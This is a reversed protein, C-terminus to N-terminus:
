ATLRLPPPPPPPPLASPRGSPLKPSEPARNPARREEMGRVGLRAAPQRGRPGQPQRLQPRRAPRPLRAGAREAAAAAHPARRERPRGPWGAGQERGPAASEPSARCGAPPKRASLRQPARNPDQVQLACGPLRTAAAALAPAAHPEGPRRGLAFARGPGAAGAPRPVAGPVRARRRQRCTAPSQLRSPQRREGCTQLAAGAVCRCRALRRQQSAEGPSDWQREPSDAWACARLCVRVCLSAGGCGALRHSLLGAVRLM